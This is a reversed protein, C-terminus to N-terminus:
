GTISLEYSAAKLYTAEQALDLETLPHRSLWGHPFHLQIRDDKVRVEVHPLPDSTRGRHLVVSIRLLVALRLMRASLEYEDVPLKRRHSRVLMALRYQDLRSFGAMDMNGLLYGGHKHYQSHSIDMGIEHLDAAWGLLLKDTPEAIQWAIAVQALLGIATERVRRAHTADIHYREKLDQVTGERVDEHQIRGLLDHILGERLAGSSAHMERIGLSEFIGYLIALGGAFVPAREGPLGPLNLRSIQRADVLAKRITKLGDLTIASVDPLMQALIDQVALITGSAGIAIDWGAEKYAKELPELEQRALNIATKFQGARLKGDGFCQKTMGVCGMHLSEMVEARFRHGLILETSGGGIDVVLRRDAADELAHSVGLYILRAEERGSIIEVKTGLIREAEDLFAKADRARRLTNTGVVRIDEPALGRLRQSFRVLCDLARAVVEPSLSKDPQIGDALRVMEKIRDLVQLRGGTEQAVLLHFSNSGLDLAALQRERTGTQPPHQAQIPSLEAMSSVAAPGRRDDQTDTAESGTM